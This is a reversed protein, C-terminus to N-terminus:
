QTVTEFISKSARILREKEKEIATALEELRKNYYETAGIRKGRLISESATLIIYEEYNKDINCTDTTASLINSNALYHVVISDNANNAPTIKINRNYVLYKKPIGSSSRNKGFADEKVLSMSVEIGTSRAIAAVWKIRNFDSPLAYSETGLVVVIITDRQVAMFEARNACNKRATNVRRIVRASDVVDDASALSVFGAVEDFVGTIYDSLIVTNDQGPIDTAFSWLPTLILVLMIKFLLKM